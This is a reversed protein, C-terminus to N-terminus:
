RSLKTCLGQLAALPHACLHRMQSAVNPVPLWELLALVGGNLAAVAQPAGTMRVWAPCRRARLSMAGFTPTSKGHAVPSTPLGPLALGHSKQAASQDARLGDGGTRQRQRQRPSTGRFVQAGGAWETEGWAPMHTRSWIERLELRGHGTHVSKRDQWEQHQAEPDEFCEM